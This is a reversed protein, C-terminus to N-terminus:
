YKVKFNGNNDVDLKLSQIYKSVFKKRESPTPTIRCAHYINDIFTNVNLESWVGTDSFESLLVDLEAKLAINKFSDINDKCFDDLSCYFIGHEILAKKINGGCKEYEIMVLFQLEPFSSILGWYDSDSSVIIFADVNNDYHEKCVGATLKIDVLSKNESIREVDIYEVPFNINKELLKWAKVTHYDDFLIVKNIRSLKEEDLGTLVSYLKYVDSNECDVVIDVKDNVNFFDYISNKIDSSADIVKGEDAFFDGHQRYIAELMRIDNAFLYGTGEPEWYIYSQYPYLNRNSIYKNSEQKLIKVVKSENNSTCGPIVYIDKVYDWVIWDPFLDKCAVIYDYMLKNIKILYKSATMNVDMIKVNHNTLWHIDDINFYEISDLNKLNYRLEADVNSYKSMIITRIQSLLRVTMASQNNYLSDLTDSYEDAYHEDLRNDYVGALFAAKVAIDKTLIRNSM